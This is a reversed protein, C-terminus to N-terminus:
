NKIQVCYLRLREYVRKIGILVELLSIRCIMKLNIFDDYAGRRRRSRRRGSFACRRFDQFLHSCWFKFEQPRPYCLGESWVVVLQNASTWENTPRTLWWHGYNSDIMLLRIITGAGMNYPCLLRRGELHVSTFTFCYWLDACSKKLLWRPFVRWTFINWLSWLAM